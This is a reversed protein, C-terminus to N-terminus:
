LRGCVVRFIGSLDKIKECNAFGNEEMEAMVADAQDHGVEFALLGGKKLLSSALAILRRYFLLGDDGGDLALAPEYDRVDRDLTCLVSSPIYPPNSVICDFREAFPCPALIDWQKLTIRESVGNNEANKHAVKLCLPSVDCATVHSKPLSHALSVAIAGSGTCLDLMSLAQSSSYRSLVCEGLTETDPRPILVGPEVFFPLSMFEREGLLYAVPECDARRRVLSFFQTEVEHSLTEDRHLVLYLREKKLLFALLVEADLRPSEIGASQLRLTAQQLAESIVM